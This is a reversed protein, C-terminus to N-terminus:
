TNEDEISVPISGAVVTRDDHPDGSWYAAETPNKRVARDLSTLTKSILFLPLNKHEYGVIPLIKANKFYKHM